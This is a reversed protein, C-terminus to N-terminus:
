RAQLASLVLAPTLLEPLLEPLPDPRHNAAAPGARYLAYVPVGHRGLRVLENAIAADRRTWDARMTVVGQQQFAALVQPHGLTSRKNVQCTVCWAATFDVFVTRGAAQHAAVAAASWPQWAQNAANGNDGNISVQTTSADDAMVRWLPWAWLLAAALSAIGLAALWRTQGVGWAALALAVLVALLGAAGDMGVQLGLVWTLWVVTAFMPFAMLAKFRLMWAGPKPLWAALGPMVSVALFPLAMGLGLSAFVPLAQAAPLTAAYGLAAGMFPATCPAAIAVALVGTLAADLTPSKVRLSAVRSPVVSGVDFVGVLNLGILTFLAALAAVVWPSQLQFGWGVAEGGARLALLAGALALFSAIVGVTYALGVRAHGRGGNPNQAFGLVKLSLVPLVCPMLNLLMGGLLASVMAFWWTMGTDAPRTSASAPM